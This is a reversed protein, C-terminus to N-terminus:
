TLTCTVCVEAVGANVITLTTTSWTPSTGAVAGDDTASVVGEVDAVNPVYTAINITNSGGADVTGRIYVNVRRSPTGYMLVQPIEEVSVETPTIATM